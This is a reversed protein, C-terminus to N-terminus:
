LLRESDCIVKNIANKTESLQVAVNFYFTSPSDGRHMVISSSIPAKLKRQCFKLFVPLMDEKPKWVKFSPHKLECLKPFGGYSMKCLM